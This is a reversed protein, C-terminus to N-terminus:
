GAAKEAALHRLAREFVEVPQGGQILHKGNIIASPVAHVGADLYFRERARVDEAYEDSALIQRAREPNSGPRLRLM